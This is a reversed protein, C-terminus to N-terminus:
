EEDGGKRRLRRHTLRDGDAGALDLGRREGAPRADRAQPHVLDGLPVSTAYAQVMRRRKGKASRAERRRGASAAEARPPWSVETGVNSADVSDSAILSTPLKSWAMVSAETSAFSGHAAGASGVFLAKHMTMAGSAISKRESGLKSPLPIRATSTC